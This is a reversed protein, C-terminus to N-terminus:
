NEKKSNINECLPEFKVQQQVSSTEIEDIFTEPHDKPNNTATADNKKKETKYNSSQLINRIIRAKSKTHKQTM